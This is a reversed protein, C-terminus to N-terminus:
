GDAHRGGASRSVAATGRLHRCLVEGAFIVHENMLRAAREGDGQALAGAIRRHDDHSRQIVAFDEWLIIRDSALPVNHTRRVFDMLWPNGAARLVTEHFRVNMQRYPLLAAPDLWGSALLADGEIVCAELIGLTAAAVGRQATLRCALAELEARVQFAAVVDEIRFERVQYGRNAAYDVLGDRSLEALATRLPTRSIGLSRALDDQRLPAGPPIAGELIRERLTQVAEQASTGSAAPPEGDLPM